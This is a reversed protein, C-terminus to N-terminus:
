AHRLQALEALIREIQDDQAALHQEIDITTHLVEDADEYTAESRKDSAAALVNQGVIIISLLVLQLFTQSVWSVITVADRSRIASPLSVLALAAFAYACWMTGVGRTIKVALWANFRNYWPATPAPRTIDAVRPPGTRRREALRPHPIYRAIDSMVGADCAFQHGWDPIPLSDLDGQGTLSHGTLTQGPLAPSGV